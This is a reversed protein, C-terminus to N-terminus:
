RQWCGGGDQRSHQAAGGGEGNILLLDGHGSSGSLLLLIVGRGQSLGDGSGRVSLLLSEDGNHNDCALGHVLGPRILTGGGESPLLLLDDSTLQLLLEGSSL